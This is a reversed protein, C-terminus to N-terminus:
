PRAKTFGLEVTDAVTQKVADAASRDTVSRTTQDDGLRPVFPIATASLAAGISTVSDISTVYTAHLALMQAIMCIEPGVTNQQHMRLLLYAVVGSSAAGIRDVRTLKGGQDTYNKDVIVNIAHCCGMLVIPLHELVDHTFWGHGGIAFLGGAVSVLEAGIEVAGRAYVSVDGLKQGIINDVTKPLTVYLAGFTLIKYSTDRADQWQDLHTDDTIGACFMSFSYMMGFTWLYQWVESARSTVTHWALGSGVCQMAVSAWM